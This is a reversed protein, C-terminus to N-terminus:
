LTGEQRANRMRIMSFNLTSRLVAEKLPTLSPTIRLEIGEKLLADPLDEIRDVRLPKVARVSTYYGANPEEVGFGEGDFVYRYLHGKRIRDYWGSEVAIMRRVASMGFFRSEDKETTEDKPWLCIRPCDRPFYYHPAHFADIAWVKAETQDYITRPEFLVIEGEESFHYLHRM